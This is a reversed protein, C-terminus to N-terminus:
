LYRHSDAQGDLQRAEDQGPLGSCDILLVSKEDMTSLSLRYALATAVVTKGEASVSSTLGVITGRRPAAELVLQRLIADFPHPSLKPMLNDAALVSEPPSSVTTM